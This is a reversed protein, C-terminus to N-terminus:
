LQAAALLAKASLPSRPLEAVREFLARALVPAHLSDRAVEAALFLAAGTGDEHGALMQVLLVNDELRRQIPSGAGRERGRAVVSAVDVISALPAVEAQTLRASVDRLLL